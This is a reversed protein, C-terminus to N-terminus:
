FGTFLSSHAFPCLCIVDIWLRENGLNKYSM